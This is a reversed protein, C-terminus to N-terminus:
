SSVTLLEESFQSRSAGHNLGATRAFCSPAQTMCASCCSFVQWLVTASCSYLVRMSIQSDFNTISIPQGVYDERRGKEKDLVGVYCATCCLRTM